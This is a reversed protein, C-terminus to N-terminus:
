KEEVEKAYLPCCKGTLRNLEFWATLKTKHEAAVAQAEQGPLFTVNQQEELHVPLREVHDSRGQMPYELIRHAGEPPCVYRTDLHSKVEDLIVQHQGDVEQHIRIRARDHGKYVYKYLYKVSTISSCVEVKIHCEYKRSLYPNYPVVSTNSLRVGRCMVFRGDDRRRYRPYGDSEMSTCDAFEKPFKKSCSGDIMCPSSPNLAGCPRHMMQKSVIEFLIPDTEKDPLEACVIEDVDATTRPKWAEKLIILIHAHPLRRKQFEVVWINAAVEGLIHKRFLDDLLADLKLKFVRAVIDPRDSATQGSFLAEQIEKWQPNCTVTIFLDPKGYRAVISMADQYKAVMDRPSGTYSAPLVIRRGPPGSDSDDAMMFDQLGRYTDLRLQAQNQKIFKLRNQEIKVWSDLVFQQMLKGALHIPNFQNRTFLLYAYYERQTLKSRKRGEVRRKEM